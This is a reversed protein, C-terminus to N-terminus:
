IPMELNNESLLIKTLKQLSRVLYGLVYKNVCFHQLNPKLSNLVGNMFGFYIAVKLNEDIKHM